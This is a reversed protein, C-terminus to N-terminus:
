WVTTREAAPRTTPSGEPIGFAEAFTALNALPGLVRFQAPSHPDSNVILRMYEPTSNTRWVRAYSLYFRQEPTLGGIDNRGTEELKRQLAAYALTLGALDAINEGLTLDGNV